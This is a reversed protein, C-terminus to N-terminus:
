QHTQVMPSHQIVEVLVALITHQIVTTHRILLLVGLRPVMAMAERLAKMAAESPHLIMVSLPGVWASQHPEVLDTVPLQQPVVAEETLDEVVEARLAVEVDVARLAAEVDEARLAAEAEPSLDEVGGPSLGEVDEPSLVVAAGPNLVEVAEPNLVEVVVAESHAETEVLEVLYLIEVVEEERHAEWEELLLDVEKQLPAVAWEWAEHHAEGALPVM